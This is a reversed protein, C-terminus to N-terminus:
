RDQMDLNHNMPLTKGQIESKLSYWSDCEYINTLTYASSCITIPRIHHPDPQYEITLFM